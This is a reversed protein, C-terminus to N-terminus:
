VYMYQLMVIHIGSFHGTSMYLPFTGHCSIHVPIVLAEHINVFSFEVEVIAHM